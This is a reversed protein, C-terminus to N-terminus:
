EYRGLYYYPSHYHLIRGLFWDEICNLVVGVLKPKPVTQIAKFCAPRRTHDPRVVVIIGDAASQLLDYDAVGEIPPSDIVVYQFTQRIIECVERWRPSDLLETPNARPAGAPMVYLSPFQEARIVVDCLEAKGELLDALGPSKPLGLQSHVTSRRIDADMLLVTTHAKLSLAGALNVSTVSKGDGPGASSVLLVRPQKPHQLIKTRIIRYQEGAYWHNQDFPLLPTGGSVRLAFTRVQSLFDSRETQDPTITELAAATKEAAASDLPLFVPKATAPPEAVAPELAAPEIAAATGSTEADETLSPLIMDPIEGQGKKLADFIKSM